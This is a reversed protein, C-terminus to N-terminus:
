VNSNPRDDLPEIVAVEARVQNRMLRRVIWNFNSRYSRMSPSRDDMKLIRSSSPACLPKDRQTMWDRRSGSSKQVVVREPRGKDNVLIRLTVSGEEGMRKSDSPYDPRPPQIYEIESSILKPQAPAAPSPPAATAAPESPQPPAPAATIAQPSPATNVVPVVPPPTHKKKVVPVMKPAAPPPKPMDPQPQEPTIFTALVVKPLAAQAAHRLLGSQLAYFLGIHLLIISGLPGIRKFQQWIAALPFRLQPPSRLLSRM